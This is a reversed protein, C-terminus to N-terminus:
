GQKGKKRNLIRRLVTGGMSGPKYRLIMAGYTPTIEHLYRLEVLDALDQAFEEPQLRTIAAIEQVRPFTRGESIKICLEVAMLLKLHRMSLKRSNFHELGKIMAQLTMVEPDASAIEIPGGISSGSTKPM